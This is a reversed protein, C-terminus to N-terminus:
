QIWVIKATAAEDGQKLRAFYVGAPYSAGDVALTRRGPGLGTLDHRAIQRGAVDFLELAGGSQPLALDFVLADQVRDVRAALALRAPPSAAQSDRPSAAASGSEPHRGAARTLRQALSDEAAPLAHTESWRRVRWGAETLALELVNRTDGLDITTGDSLAIRAELHELVVHAEGTSSDVSVVLVPGV